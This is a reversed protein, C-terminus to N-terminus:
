GADAAEAANQAAEVVALATMNVVGRSTVSPTLIHAPLATGLLIPGVHLADTMAKITNLAINAADLNPFVLLNAEGTLTSHPYVRQRLTESLASDGHMEGDAVLDPAATRLLAAAKRMKLASASDRSGFNSHSLLAAKPEIGFRRIEAAALTTMEAIEEASPDVSVYTDTFFTVGRQSILMSLASMDTVGDRRGIILEVNRLHRDFRGEQGCVMADAEGRMM